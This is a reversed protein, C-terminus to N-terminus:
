LMIHPMNQLLKENMRHEALLCISQLYICFCFLFLLFVFACVHLWRMRITNSPMCPLPNSSIPLGKTWIFYINYASLNNIHILMIRNSYTHIHVICAPECDSPGYIHIIEDASFCSARLGVGFALTCCTGCVRARAHFSCIFSVSAFLFPIYFLRSILNIPLYFSNYYTYKKTKEKESICRACIASQSTHVPSFLHHKFVMYHPIPSFWQYLFTYDFWNYSRHTRERVSERHSTSHCIDTDM